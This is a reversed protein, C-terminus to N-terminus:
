AEITISKSVSALVTDNFIIKATIEHNGPSVGTCSSCYPARSLFEIVNEGKKLNLTKELSIYDGYRGKIGSVKVQVGELEQSSFFSVNIRIEEGQKYSEKDTFIKLENDAQKENITQNFFFENRNLFYISFFLFAVLLVIKFISNPVWVKM